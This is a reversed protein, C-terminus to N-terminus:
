AKVVRALKGGRARPLLEPEAILEVEATIGTRAEIGAVVRDRVGGLASAPTSEEYGVRVKLVDIERAPRVMQFVAAATEAVEELSRWIDMPVLSRGHVITEDGKRGVPWFRAHTRGCRCKERTMRILDDSRFRVTPTAPNDLSTAM